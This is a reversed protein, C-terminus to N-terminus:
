PSAQRGTVVRNCHAANVTVTFAVLRPSNRDHNGGECKDVFLGVDTHFFVLAWLIKYIYLSRPVRFSLMFITRIFYLSFVPEVCLPLRRTVKGAHTCIKNM